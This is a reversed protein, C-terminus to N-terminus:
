HNMASRRRSFWNVVAAVAFGGILGAPARTLVGHFRDSAFGTVLVLFVWAAGATLAKRDKFVSRFIARQLPERQYRRIVVILAAVFTVGLILLGNTTQRM